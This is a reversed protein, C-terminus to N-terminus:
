PIIIYINWSIQNGCAPILVAPPEGVFACRPVTASGLLVTGGEVLGGGFQPYVEHQVTGSGEGEVLVPATQARRKLPQHALAWQIGDDRRCRHTTIIM